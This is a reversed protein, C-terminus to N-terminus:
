SCSKVGGSEKKKATGYGIVIVEDLAGNASSLTVNYSSRNNLNITYTNMGVLSVLLSKTGTPVKLSFNGNADTVTGFQTDPVTISSNALAVGKEDTVKGTVTREQAMANLVFSLGVLLTLVIKRMQLNIKYLFLYLNSVRPKVM